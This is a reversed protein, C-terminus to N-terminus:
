NSKIRANYFVRALQINLFLYSIRERDHWHVAIVGDVQRHKPHKRHKCYYHAPALRSRITGKSAIQLSDTQPKFDDVYKSPCNKVQM